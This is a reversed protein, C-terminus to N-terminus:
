LEAGLAQQLEEQPDFGLLDAAERALTRARPPESPNTMKPSDSGPDGYLEAGNELNVRKDDYAGLNVRKDDYSPGASTHGTRPGGSGLTVPDDSGGARARSLRWVWRGEGGFGLKQKEVGEASAARHVTRWHLGAKRARDQLEKAGVETDNKLEERLFTRAEEIATRDEESRIALLQHAQHETEGEWRVRVTGDIPEPRYALAPAPAAINTKTVALIRRAGTEDDPDRAVLLGSRAAAILGISGGGAYVASGGASGKTLHRIAVIAVGRRDALDALGALASRVDQDRYSDADGLYAVLPDLIVLRADVADIAQEIAETHYVTPWTEGNEGAIARLAVVHEPHAGMADLRPRITDALGDEATLLVTGALMALDAREGDPMADGRSLRAAIDLAISTKLNGPDGDLITIKGFPIRGPWAWTVPEPQVTDLRVLVPATDNRAAAAARRAIIEAGYLDLPDTAV